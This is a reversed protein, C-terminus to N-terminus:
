RLRTPLTLDGESRPMLVPIPNIGRSDLLPNPSPCRRPNGEATTKDPVHLPEPRLYQLQRRDDLSQRQVLANMGQAVAPNLQSVFELPSPPGHVAPLDLDLALANSDQGQVLRDGGVQPPDGGHQLDIAVELPEVIQCPVDGLPDFLQRRDGTKGM